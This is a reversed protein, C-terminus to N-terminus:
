HSLLARVRALMEAPAYPKPLFEVGAAPELPALGQTSLHGSTLLVPLGPTRQRLRHCVDRGDMDPLRCDALVLVIEAHHKTYADLAAGGTQCWITRLGLGRLVLTLMHAIADNDELLM